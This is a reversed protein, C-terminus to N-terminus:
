FIASRALCCPKSMRSSISPRLAFPLPVTATLYRSGFFGELVQVPRPCIGRHITAAVLPLLPLFSSKRIQPQDHCFGRAGVLLGNEGPQQAPRGIPDHAFPHAACFPTAVPAALHELRPFRHGTGRRTGCATADSEPELLLPSWPRWI